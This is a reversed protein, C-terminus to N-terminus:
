ECLGADEVSVDGGLSLLGSELRWGSLISCGHRTEQRQAKAWATYESLLCQNHM